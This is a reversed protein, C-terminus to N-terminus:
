NASRLFALIAEYEETTISCRVRMHHMAVQWERDSYYGPSRANHCRICNQTWMQARGRAVPEPKADAVDEAPASDARCAGLALLLLVLAVILKM